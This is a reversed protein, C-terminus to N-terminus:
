QVPPKRASKHERHKKRKRNVKEVLGDIQIIPSGEYISKQESDSQREHHSEPLFSPIEDIKSQVKQLKLWGYHDSVLQKM